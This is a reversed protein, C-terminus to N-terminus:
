FYVKTNEASLRNIDRVIKDKETRASRKKWVNSRNVNGVSYRADFELFLYKLDKESGIRLRCQKM